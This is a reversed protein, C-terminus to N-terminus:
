LGSLGDERASSGLHEGMAASMSRIIPYRTSRPLSARVDPNGAGSAAAGNSRVSITIRDHPGPDASSNRAMRGLTFIRKMDAYLGARDLLIPTRHTRPAKRAFGNVM